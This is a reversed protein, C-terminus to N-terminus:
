YNIRIFFRTFNIRVIRVDSLNSGGSIIQVGQERSYLLRIPSPRQLPIQFYFCFIVKKPRGRSSKRKTLYSCTVCYMGCPQWNLLTLSTQIAKGETSNRLHLHCKPCFHQPTTGPVPFIDPNRLGSRILDLNKEVDHYQVEKMITGCVFCLRVLAEEHINEYVKSM